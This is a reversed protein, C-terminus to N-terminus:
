CKWVGFHTKKTPVVKTLIDVVMKAIPVYEFRISRVNVMEKVYHHQIDIHKTRSHHILNKILSLCRQNNSFIHTNEKQNFGFNSNVLFAIFGFLKKLHKHYAMYEAKTTSLIFTPEKHSSWSMARNNLLFVYGITSKRTQLNGGGWDVHMMLDGFPWTM